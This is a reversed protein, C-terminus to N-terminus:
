VLAKSGLLLPILSVKVVKSDRKRSVRKFRDLSALDLEIFTTNTIM